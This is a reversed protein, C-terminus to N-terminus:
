EKQFVICWNSKDFFSSILKVGPVRNVLQDLEDKDYLHYYRKFVVTGKIRDVQGDAFVDKVDLGSGAGSDPCPGGEAKPASEGSCPVESSSDSRTQADQTQRPQQTCAATGSDDALNGAGELKPIAQQEDNGALSQSERQQTPQASRAKAAAAAAEVRHFPVHWPVFYDGGGSQSGAFCCCQMVRAARILCRVFRAIGLMTCSHSPTSIGFMACSCFLVLNAAGTSCKRPLAKACPGIPESNAPQGPHKQM